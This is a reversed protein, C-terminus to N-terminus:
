CTELSDCKKYSEGEKLDINSRQSPEIFSCFESSKSIGFTLSQTSIEVIWLELFFMM